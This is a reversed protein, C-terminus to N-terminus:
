GHVHAHTAEQCYAEAAQEFAATALREDAVAQTWEPDTKLTRLRAPRLEDKRTRAAVVKEYAALLTDRTSTAM